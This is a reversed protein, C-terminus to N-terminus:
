EGGGMKSIVFALFSGLFLGIFLLFFFAISSQDVENAFDDFTWNDYKKLEKITRIIDIFSSIGWVVGVILIIVLWLYKFMDEGKYRVVCSLLKGYVM